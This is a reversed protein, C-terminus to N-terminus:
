VYGIKCWHKTLCSELGPKYSLSIWTKKCIFVQHHGPVTLCVNIEEDSIAPGPCTGLAESHLPTAPEELSTAPFAM